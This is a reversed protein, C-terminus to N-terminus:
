DRDRDSGDYYDNAEDENAIAGFRHGMWIKTRRIKM